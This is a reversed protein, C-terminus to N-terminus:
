ARLVKDGKKQGGMRRQRWRSRYASSLAYTGLIIVNFIFIVVCRSESNWINTTQPVAREVKSRNDPDRSRDSRPHQIINYRIFVIYMYLWLRAHSYWSTNHWCYYSGRHHTVYAQLNWCTMIHNSNLRNKNNNLRLCVNLFFFKVFKSLFWRRYSAFSCCM